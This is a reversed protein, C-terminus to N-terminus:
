GDASSDKAAEGVPKGSHRFFRKIKYWYTKLALAISAFIGVIASVVMSGTSPDLYAFVSPSSSLLVLALGVRAFLIPPSKQRMIRRLPQRLLMKADIYEIFLEGKGQVVSVKFLDFSGSGTIRRDYEQAEPFCMM